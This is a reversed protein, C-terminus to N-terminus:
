ATIEEPTTRQNEQFIRRVTYVNRDNLVSEPRAPKLVLNAPLLGKKLIAMPDYVSVLVNTKTIM